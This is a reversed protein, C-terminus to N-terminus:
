KEGKYFRPDARLAKLEPRHEIERALGGTRALSHWARLADDRRGIAEYAMVARFLVPASAPALNLATEIEKAAGAHDGSEALLLGLDAHTDADRTNVALTKAALARGQEAAGAAKGALEPVHRYARALSALMVLSVPGIEVCKEMMRAADAYREQDFYLAALNNYAVGNPKLAISRMWAAEAEKLRGTQLYLAGLRYWARYSDPALNRAQLFSREAEPYRGHNYFFVGLLEHGQPNGPQAAVAQRYASEAEPVRKLADNARALAIWADINRPDLRLVEQLLAASEPYHGEERSILALATLSEPTRGGLRIAEGASAHARAIWEADKTARYRQLWAMALGAHARAFKPDRRLAEQFVAIAAEAQDGSQLYGRGQLYYDDAGPEVGAREGGAKSREPLRVDLLDAAVGAIEDELKWSDAATTIQRSRLQRQTRADSLSATVRVRDGALDVRGTVVLDVGFLQRADRASQLRAQAVDGPSVVWFGQRFAEVGAIQNALATVIGLSFAQERKDSGSITFPLVAVGRQRPGRAHLWLWLVGGLIVLGLAALALIRRRHKIQGVPLAVTEASSLASIRNVVQRLAAALETGNQYRRPPDRELCAEVVPELESPVSQLMDTLVLGFSYVDSRSDVEHGRFQEPSMYAFTGM